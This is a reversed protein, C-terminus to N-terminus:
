NPAELHVTFVGSLHVKVMPRARPELTTLLLHTAVTNAAERIDSLITGIGQPERFRDTTRESLKAAERLSPVLAFLSPFYYNAAGFTANKDLWDIVKKVQVVKAVVAQAQEIYQLFPTGGSPSSLYLQAAPVARVKEWDINMNVGERVTYNRAIISYDHTVPYAARLLKLHEPNILNDIMWQDSFPMPALNIQMRRAMEGLARTVEAMQSGNLMSNPSQTTRKRRPWAM